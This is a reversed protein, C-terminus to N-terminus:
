TWGDFGFTFLPDANFGVQRLYIPSEQVADLARYQDPLTDWWARTWPHVVVDALDM